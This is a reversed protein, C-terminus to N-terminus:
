QNLVCFAPCYRSFKLKLRHGTTILQSALYMIEQIVTRLRRRKAKHRVPADVGLLASLGMWRLMNYAM